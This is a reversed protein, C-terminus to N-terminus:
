IINAIKKKKRLESRYKGELFEREEEETECILGPVETPKENEDLAVMIVYAKNVLKRQGGLREIYTKVCVEMSTRGTYTVTGVLVLTDNAYAPAAFELSDIAATTVNKGCHRRATVAAVIDIWVMQQGGFLRGYGNMERQTLIQVQETRSLKWLILLNHFFKKTGLISFMNGCRVFM